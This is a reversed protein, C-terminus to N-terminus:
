LGAVIVLRERLPVALVQSNLELGPAAGDESPGVVRRPVPADGRPMDGLFVALPETGAVGAEHDVVSDVVHGVHQRLQLAVADFDQLARLGVLISCERPDEIGVSVFHFQPLRLRPVLLVLGLSSKTLVPARARSRDDSPVIRCIAWACCTRSRTIAKM